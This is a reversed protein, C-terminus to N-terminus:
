NYCVMSTRNTIAHGRSIVADCRSLAGMAAMACSACVHIYVTTYVSTHAHPWTHPGPIHTLYTPWSATPSAICDIISHLRRHRALCTTPVYEGVDASSAAVRQPATMEEAKAEHAAGPRKAIASPTASPLLASAIVQPRMPAVDAVCRVSMHSRCGHTFVIHLRHRLPDTFVPPLSLHCLCTAFVPPLSLHISM